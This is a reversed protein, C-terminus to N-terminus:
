ILYKPVQRKRLRGDLEGFVGQLERDLIPRSNVIGRENADEIGSALNALQVSILDFLVSTSSRTNVKPVFDILCNSAM